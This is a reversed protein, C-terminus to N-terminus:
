IDSKFGFDLIEGGLREGFDTSRFGFDHFGSRQVESGLVRFREYSVVM